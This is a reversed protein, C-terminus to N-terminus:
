LILSTPLLFPPKGLYQPSLTCHVRKLAASILLPVPRHSGAHPPANTTLCSRTAVYWQAKEWWGGGGWGEVPTKNLGTGGQPCLHCMGKRDISSFPLPFFICLRDTWVDGFGCSEVSSPNFCRKNQFSLLTEETHKGGEKVLYNNFVCVCVYIHVYTYICM